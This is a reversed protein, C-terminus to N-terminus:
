AATALAQAASDCFETGAPAKKSTSTDPFLATALAHRVVEAASVGQRDLKRKLERAIPEPLTVFLKWDGVGKYTNGRM